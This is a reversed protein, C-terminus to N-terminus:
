KILEFEYAYVWPNRQWTGKGCIDDILLAFCEPAPSMRHRVEGDRFYQFTRVRDDPNRDIYPFYEQIGEKLCDEESIDQLREVKINTIRIRNPMWDAKVFMKNHCGKEGKICELPFTPDAKQLSEYFADCNRLDWYKQAIAVNEGIEYKPQYKAPASYDYIGADHLISRVDMFLVGHEFGSVPLTVRGRRNWDIDIDPIIRRTMTKKGELVAQTLGYRDNFMIKKM